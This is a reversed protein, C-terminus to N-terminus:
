GRRTVRMALPAPPDKSALGLTETHRIKLATLKQRSKAVGACANPGSPRRRIRRFFSVSATPSLLRGAERKSFPCQPGETAVSAVMARVSPTGILSELYLCEIDPDSRM